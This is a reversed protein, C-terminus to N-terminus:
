VEKMWNLRMVTKIPLYQGQLDIQEAAEQLLDDWGSTYAIPIGTKNSVEELLLQGEIIDQSCTETALNTNNIWGDITVRAADQIQSFMTLVREISNSFPRRANVVYYINLYERVSDFQQHFAGLATAGVVDGGVDFIVSAYQDSFVSAVEATIVPLDINTNVFNSAILTINNEQLLQRKEASRFYPNIIDMDVLAVRKNSAAANLAMNLALETKGSGYNGLLVTYQKMLTIRIYDIFNMGTHVEIM